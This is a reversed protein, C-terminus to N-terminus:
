LPPLVVIRIDDYRTSFYMNMGSCLTSAGLGSRLRIVLLQPDTFASSQLQVRGTSIGDQAVQDGFLGCDTLTQSVVLVSIASTSNTSFIESRAFRTLRPWQCSLTESQVRFEYPTDFATLRITDPNISTDVFPPELSLGYELGVLRNIGQRTRVQALIDGRGLEAWTTNSTSMFGRWITDGSVATCALGIGGLGDGPGPMQYGIIVSEVRDTSDRSIHMEIYATDVCFTFQGPPDAITRIEVTPVWTQATHAAGRITISPHSASFEFSFEQGSWNSAFEWPQIIRTYNGNGAEADGSQPLQCTSGSEHLITGGDDFLEFSDVVDGNVDRVRCIISDVDEVGPELKAVFRVALTEYPQPDWFNEIFPLRTPAEVLVIDTAQSEDDSCSWILLSLAWLAFVWRM